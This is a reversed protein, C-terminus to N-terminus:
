SKSSPQQLYFQRVRLLSLLIRAIIRIMRYCYLLVGEIKNPSTLWLFSFFARWYYASKKGVFIHRILEFDNIQPGYIRGAIDSDDDWVCARPAIILKIGNKRALITFASDAYYHPFTKQNYLGFMEFYRRPILCCNGNISEVEYAQSGISESPFMNDPYHWGWKFFNWKAGAFRIQNPKSLYLIKAGIIANPYQEAASLMENLFYADHITDDNLILLYDYTKSELAYKIGINVTASWYLDGTGHLVTVSPFLNSIADVTGDTSGDDVVIISYSFGEQKIRNLSDLCRLTTNKRNHSPIIVAINHKNM